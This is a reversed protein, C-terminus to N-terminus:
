VAGASTVKVISGSGADAVYFSGQSDETIGEPQDLGSVFPTIRGSPSIESITGDGTNTVYLNGASDAVAGFPQNLGGSVLTTTEGTPAVRVLVNRDISNAGLLYLNGASDVDIGSLNSLGTPIQTISLAPTVKYVTSQTAVFMDGASDGALGVPAASGWPLQAYVSAQGAPTVEIISSTGNAGAGSTTTQVTYLDGKSDLVAGVPSTLPAGSFLQSASAPAQTPASPDPASLTVQLQVPGAPVPLNGDNLVDATMHIAQSVGATAIPPDLSIGGRIAEVSNIAFATVGEAVITGDATSADIVASYRGGPNAVDPWTISVALTSQANVTELADSLTQGLVTGKAPVTAVVDHNADYITATFLLSASASTRNELTANIVVDSYPDFAGSSTAVNTFDFGSSAAPNLTFSATYDGFGPGPMLASQGIYGPASVDVEFSQTAIGSITYRGNGDTTAVLATGKISVTAGAVAAAPQGATITGSVTSSTLTPPEVPASLRVVGAENNGATLSGSLSAGDYGNASIQASFAGVALGAISFQGQSDTTATQGGTSVTAGSIPQGTGADVVTGTLTATTPPTTADPYDTPSFLVTGGAVIQGSGSVTQYGSLTATVTISGPQLGSIVYTGNSATTATASSGGDSVTILVGGLPQGTAGDTVTGQLAGVTPPIASLKILPADITAGATVSVTLQQSTYGALSATLTYSGPALSSLSYQGNSSTAQTGSQQALQITVGSLPALTSADVVQGSVQGTTPAAPVSGAAVLARLAIATLYPDDNWSGDTLQSAELAQVSASYASSDTTTSALALTAVADSLTDDYGGGSQANRLWADAAGITASLSYAQAYAQLALTVVSTTYVDSTTHFADFGGDSNAAGILYQLAHGLVSGSAGAAKLALLAWATELPSSSYGAYTGFGGDPNQYTLLTTVLSSADEGALQLAIIRRSAYEANLDPDGQAAAVVATPVTDLEALTQAVEERAQVPTAISASEGALSGDSQIQQKLWTVGNVVNPPLTGAKAVRVPSICVVAVLAARALVRPTTAGSAARGCV